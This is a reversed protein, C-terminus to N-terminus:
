VAEAVSPPTDSVAYGEGEPILFRVPKGFGEALKREATVGTSKQWGPIALVWVEDCRSIVTEDFEAWFHWDGPAGGHRSIPHSHAIPSLFFEHPRHNSLWIWAEIVALNRQDEVAKDTHTYPSALYILKSM